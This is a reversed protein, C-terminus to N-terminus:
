ARGAWMLSEMSECHVQDQQACGHRSTAVARPPADFAARIAAGHHVGTSRLHEYRRQAAVGERLAKCFAYLAAAARMDYSTRPSAEKRATQGSTLIGFM